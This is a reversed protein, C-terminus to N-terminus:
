RIFQTHLTKLRYGDKLYETRSKIKRKELDYVIIEKSTILVIDNDETIDFSTIIDKHSFGLRNMYSIVDECDTLHDKGIDETYELNMSNADIIVLRNPQAFTIIKTLNDLKIIKHSTFRFLKSDTFTGVHELCDDKIIYKDIAAPGTFYTGGYFSGFNHSSTYLNNDHIEFHAPNGTHTSYKQMSGDNIAIIEGPLPSIDHKARLIEVFNKKMTRYTAEPISLKTRPIYKDILAKEFNNLGHQKRFLSAATAALYITKNGAYYVINRAIRSANIWAKKARGSSDYIEQMLFENLSQRTNFGKNIDELRFSSSIFQSSFIFNNHERIAHPAYPINNPFDYLDQIDSFDLNASYINTQWSSGTRQNGTFFIRDNGEFFTDGLSADKLGLDSATIIKLEKKETNVKYFYDCLGYTFVYFGSDIQIAYHPTCNNPNAFSEANPYKGIIKVNEPTYSDYYHIMDGDMIVFTYFFRSLDKTNHIYFLLKKDIVQRIKRSSYNLKLPKM